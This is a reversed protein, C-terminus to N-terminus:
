ERWAEARNIYSVENNVSPRVSQDYEKKIQSVNKKIAQRDMNSQKSGLSIYDEPGARGPKKDM